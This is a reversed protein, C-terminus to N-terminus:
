LQSATTVEQPCHITKWHRRCMGDHTGQAEKDCGEVKCRKGKGGHRQCHGQSRIRRTCEPYRCLRKKKGDGDGRKRLLENLEIAILKCEKNQFLFSPFIEPNSGVNNQHGAAVNNEFISVRYQCKKKFLNHEIMGEHYMFALETRVDEKLLSKDLGGNVLFLHLEEATWWWKLGKEGLHDKILSRLLLRQKKVDKSPRGMELAITIVLPIVFIEQGFYNKSTDGSRPHSTRMTRPLLRLVTRNQRAVKMVDSQTEDKSNEKGSM